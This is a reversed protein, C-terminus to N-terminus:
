RKCIKLSSNILKNRFRKIEYEGILSIFDIEIYIKKESLNNERTPSILEKFENYKKNKIIIEKPGKLLRFLLHYSFRMFKDFYNMGYKTREILACQSFLYVDTM